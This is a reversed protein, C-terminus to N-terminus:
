LDVPAVVTTADALGLRGARAECVATAVLLSELEAKPLYQM